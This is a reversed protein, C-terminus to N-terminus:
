IITGERYHSVIIDGNNEQRINYGNNIFEERLNFNAYSLLDHTLVAMCNHCIYHHIENCVKFEVLPVENNHCMECSKNICYKSM